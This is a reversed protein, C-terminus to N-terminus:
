STAQDPRCRPSKLITCRSKALCNPKNFSRKYCTKSIAWAPATALMRLKSLRGSCNGDSELIGLTKSLYALQFYASKVEALISRRM